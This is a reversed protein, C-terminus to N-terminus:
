KRKADEKKERREVEKIIAEVSKHVYQRYIYRLDAQNIYNPNDTILGKGDKKELYVEVGNDLLWKFFKVLKGRMKFDRKPDNKEVIKNIEEELVGDVQILETIGLKKKRFGKLYEKIDM